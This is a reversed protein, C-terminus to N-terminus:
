TADEPATAKLKEKLAKRELRLARKAEHRADAEAMRRMLTPEGCLPTSRDVQIGIIAALEERIILRFRKEDKQEAISLGAKLVQDFNLLRVVESAIAAIDEPDLTVKDVHRQDVGQLTGCKAM